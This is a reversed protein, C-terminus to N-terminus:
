RIQSKRFEIPTALIPQFKTKHQVCIFFTTRSASWCASLRLHCFRLSGEIIVIVCQIIPPKGQPMCTRRSYPSAPTLRRHAIHWKSVTFLMSIWYWHCIKWSTPPVNSAERSAHSDKTFSVLSTCTKQSHRPTQFHILVHVIRRCEVQHACRQRNLPMRWTEKM